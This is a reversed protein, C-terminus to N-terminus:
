ATGRPTKPLVFIPADVSGEHKVTDTFMNLHKGLLELCRVKDHRRVKTTVSGGGGVTESVEQISDIADQPILGKEILDIGTKDWTVLDGINGFAIKALEELVQDSTISTRQARASMLRQVEAQIPRQALLRNAQNRAGNVSYGARVAAAAGNLDLVFEQCFRQQKVNLMHQVGKWGVTSYWVEVLKYVGM